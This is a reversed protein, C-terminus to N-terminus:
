KKLKNNFKLVCLERFFYRLVFVRTYQILRRIFIPHRRFQFLVETYGISNRKRIAALETAEKILLQLQQYVLNSHIIILPPLLEPVGKLKLLLQPFIGTAQHDIFFYSEYRM